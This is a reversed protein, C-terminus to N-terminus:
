RQSPRIGTAAAPAAPARLTGGRKLADVFVARDDPPLGIAFEAVVREMRARVAFDAERARTMAADIRARDPTPEALAEALTLRQARAERALPAIERRAERLARRFAQRQAPSLEDAAFRLARRATPAGESSAAAPAEAAPSRLMWFAGAGVAGGLLFINATLSAILALKLNGTM